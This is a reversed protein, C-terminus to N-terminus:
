LFDKVKEENFTTIEFIFGALVKLRVKMRKFRNRFISYKDKYRFSYASILSILQQQRIQM